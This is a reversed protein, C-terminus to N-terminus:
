CGEVAAVRCFGDVEGYVARDVVYCGTSSVVPRAAAVVEEGAFVGASSEHGVAEVLISVRIQPAHLLHEDRKIILLDIHQIRTSLQLRQLLLLPPSRLDLRIIRQLM